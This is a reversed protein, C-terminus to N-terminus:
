WGDVTIDRFSGSIDSNVEAKNIFLQSTDQLKSPSKSFIKNCSVTM